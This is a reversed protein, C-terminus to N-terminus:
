PQPCPAQQGGGSSSSGQSGSPLLDGMNKQSGSGSAKSWNGLLGKFELRQKEKPPKGEGGSLHDPVSQGDELGEDATGFFEGGLFEPVQPVPPTVSVPPLNIRNTQKM